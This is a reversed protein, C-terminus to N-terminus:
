PWWQVKNGWNRAVAEAKLEAIDKPLMNSTDVIVNEGSKLEADVKNAATNREFGGKKPSRSSDSFSKVDWKTRNADIFEAAGSPDRVIPGKVGNPDNRAEMELGVKREHITKPSIQNNHAPDRALDELEQATRVIPKPAPPPPSKSSDWKGKAAKAMRLGQRAGFFAIIGTITGVGTKAVGTSFDKGAKDLDDLSKAKDCRTADFFKLLTGIGDIVQGVSTIIGWASLAIVIAAAIGEIIAGVGTSAVAGAAWALGALVGGVVVIGAVLEGISPLQRMVEETIQGKQYARQIATSMKQEHTWLSIPVCVAVAANGQLPTKAKGEPQVGPAPAENGM